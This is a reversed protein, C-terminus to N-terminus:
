WRWGGGSFHVHSWLFYSAIVLAIIAFPTAARLVKRHDSERFAAIPYPLAIMWGFGLAYLVPRVFGEGVLEVGSPGLMSPEDYVFIGLPASIVNVMQGWIM